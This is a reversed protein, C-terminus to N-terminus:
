RTWPNMFRFKLDTLVPSDPDISELMAIWRRLGNREKLAAMLQVEAQCLATFESIHMRRMELLPALLQKAKDFERDETAFNALSIRAFLYDPWRDHVQRILALSEIRRGQLEFAMALNQLLDPADGVEALCKRLLDEATIGDDKFLCEHARLAWERVKAPRDHDKPEFYVDFGHFRREQWEGNSWM